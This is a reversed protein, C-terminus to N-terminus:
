AIFRPKEDVLRQHAGADGPPPSFAEQRLMLGDPISRELFLPMKTLAEIAQFLGLWSPSKM